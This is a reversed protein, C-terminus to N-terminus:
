GNSSCGVASVCILASLSVALVKKLKKRMNLVEM